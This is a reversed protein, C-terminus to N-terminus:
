SGLRALDKRFNMRLRIEFKKKFFFFFVKGLCLVSRM